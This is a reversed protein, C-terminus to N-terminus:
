KPGLIRVINEEQLDVGLFRGIQTIQGYLMYQGQHITCLSQKAAALLPTEDERIVAECVLTDPSLKGTPLPLEDTDRLGLSTANIIVDFGAPDNGGPRMVVKPVLPQLREILALGREPSRNSIVLEAPNERAVAYAISKGAGGAGILLVRKGRLDHGQEHLGSVFGDGDFNGGILIRRKHDIRLVNASGVLKATETLEACFDLVREKYPITVIIGLLNAVGPVGKLVKALDDDLVHFPVCVANLKQLAVSANFLEPTRVHAVPNAIIGVLQTKGDINM